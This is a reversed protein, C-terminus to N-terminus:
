RGSAVDRAAYALLEGVTAEHSAPPRASWESLTDRVTQAVAQVYQVLDEDLVTM